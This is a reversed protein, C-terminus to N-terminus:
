LNKEILSTIYAQLSTNEEIVKAKLKSIMKVPLRFAVLKMEPKSPPKLLDFTGLRKMEAYRSKYTSEAKGYKRALRRCTERIGYRDFDGKLYAEIVIKETEGLHSYDFSAKEEM